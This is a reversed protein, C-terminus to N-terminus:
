NTDHSCEWLQYTPVFILTTFSQVLSHTDWMVLSWLYFCLTSSWHFLKKRQFSLHWISPSVCLIDQHCCLLSFWINLVIIEVYAWIIVQLVQQVALSVNWKLFLWYILTMIHSGLLVESPKVSYKKPLQIHACFCCSWFEPNGRENYVHVIKIQAM